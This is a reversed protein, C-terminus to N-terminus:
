YFINGSYRKPSLKTTGNYFKYKNINGDITFYINLSTSSKLNLSQVYFTAGEHEGSIQFDNDSNTVVTSVDKDAEELDAGYNIM